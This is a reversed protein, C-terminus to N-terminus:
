YQNIRLNRILVLYKYFTFVGDTVLRCVRYNVQEFCERVLEGWGRQAVCPGGTAGLLCFVEVEVEVEKSTSITSIVM